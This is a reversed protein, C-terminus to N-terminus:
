CSRQLRLQSSRRLHHVSCCGSLQSRLPRRKPSPEIKHSVSPFDLSIAGKLMKKGTKPGFDEGFAEFVSAFDHYGHMTKLRHEDRFPGTCRATTRPGRSARRARKRARLAHLNHGTCPCAVRVVQEVELRHLQLRRRARKLSRSTSRSSNPCSRVGIQDVWLPM